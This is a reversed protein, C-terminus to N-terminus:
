LKEAFTTLTFSVCSVDNKTTLFIHFFFEVSLGNDIHFKLNMVSVFLKNNKLLSKKKFSNYLM